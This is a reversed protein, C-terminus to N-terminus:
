LDLILGYFMSSSQCFYNIQNFPVNVVLLQLINFGLHNLYEKFYNIGEEGNTKM